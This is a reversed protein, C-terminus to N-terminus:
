SIDMNKLQILSNRNEKATESNEMKMRDQREKEVDRKSNMIDRERETRGMVDWTGLFSFRLETPDYIFYALLYPSVGLM